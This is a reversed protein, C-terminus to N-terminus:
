YLYFLIESVNSDDDIRWYRYERGDTMLGYIISHLKHAAKRARHLMGVIILKNTMLIEDGILIVYRGMYALLQGYAEGIRHKRKAEVVVLNGSLKGDHPYGLTYDAFGSLTFLKGKHKITQKLKTELSLSMEIPKASPELHVSSLSSSLKEPTTPAACDDTSPPLPPKRHAHGLVVREDFLSYTIVLNVFLRAFAENSIPPEHVVTNLREFSIILYTDFYCRYRLTKSDNKNNNLKQPLQFLEYDDCNQRKKDLKVEFTKM